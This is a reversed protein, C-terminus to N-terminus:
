ELSHFAEEKCSLSAERAEGQNWAHKGKMLTIKHTNKREVLWQLIKRFMGMSIQPIKNHMVRMSSTCIFVIDVQPERTMALSSEQLFLLFSSVVVELFFSNGDEFVLFFLPLPPPCGWAEEYARQEGRRWVHGQLSLFTLKMSLRREM